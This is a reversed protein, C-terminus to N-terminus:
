KGYAPHSRNGGSEVYALLDLVEDLSLVGLLGQPMPSVMSRERSEVDASRYTERRGTFPDVIM